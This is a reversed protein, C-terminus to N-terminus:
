PVEGLRLKALHRRMAKAKRSLRRYLEVRPAALAGALATAVALMPHLKGSQAVSAEPSEVDLCLDIVVPQAFVAEVAHLLERLQEPAPLREPGMHPLEAPPPQPAPAAAPVPALTRERWFEPNLIQELLTASSAAPANALGTGPEREGVTAIAVQTNLAQGTQSERVSLLLNSGSGFGTTQIVVATDPTSGNIAVTTAPVIVTTTTSPAGAVPVAICFVTGNLERINPNTATDFITSFHADSTGTPRGQADLIETFTVGTGDLKVQFWSKRTPDLWLLELNKSAISDSLDFDDTVAVTANANTSVQLDVFALPLASGATSSNTSTRITLDATDGGSRDTVPNSNYVALALTDGPEANSITANLKVNGGPTTLTTSASGSAGVVAVVFSTVHSAQQPDFVTVPFMASHSVSGQDDTVTVTVGYTRVTAYSHQLSFTLASPNFNHSGTTAPPPPLTFSETDGDGYDVNVTWPGDLSAFGVTRAWTTNAATFTSSDGVTVVPPAPKLVTLTGKIDTIDYNAATGGSAIITHTGPTAAAGTATALTVGSIVAYTDGDYLTGSPTYTLTPDPGGLVKSQNDATVTLPAKAITWTGTGTASVFDATDNPTFTVDVTYTGAASPVTSSGNYTYTRTGGGNEQGSTGLVTVDKSPFAQAAGNYTTSDDTVTVQPTIQPVFIMAADTAVPELPDSVALNVVYTGAHEPTFSFQTPDAPTVLHSVALNDVDTSVKDSDAQVSWSYKAGAAGGPDGSDTFTSGLNIAVGQPSTAPAGTIAVKPLIDNLTITFPQTFTQQNSDETQVLVSYTSQNGYELVANSQLQDGVVTFQANDTDGPGNVLSYTYTGNGGTDTTSLTGVTTNAPRGENLNAKDLMIATPQSTPTFRITSENHIVPLGNSTEPSTVQIGAVGAPLPSDEKEGAFMQGPQVDPFGSRIGVTAHVGFDGSNGKSGEGAAANEYNFEIWGNQFLIAEFTFTQPSDAFGAALSWQVVFRQNGESGLTEYYVVENDSLKTDGWLPAIIPRNPGTNQTLDTGTHTTYGGDSPLSSFSMLGNSNIWIADYQQNFFSFSFGIPAQVVADDGKKLVAVAGADHSIDIFQPTALLTASYSGSSYVKGPLMPLDTQLVSGFGTSPTVRDELLELLLRVSPRRRIRGRRGKRAIPFSWTPSHAEM